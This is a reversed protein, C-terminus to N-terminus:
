SVYGNLILILVVVYWDEILQNSNLILFCIWKFYPNFSLIQIHLENGKDILNLFMDM